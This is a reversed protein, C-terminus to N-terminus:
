VVIFLPKSIIPVFQFFQLNYLCYQNIPRQFNRQIIRYVIRIYRIKTVNELPYDTYGLTNKLRILNVQIWSALEWVIYNLDM